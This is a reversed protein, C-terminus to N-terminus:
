SSFVYNGFSINSLSLLIEMLCCHKWFDDAAIVVIISDRPQQLTLAINKEQTLEQVGMAM